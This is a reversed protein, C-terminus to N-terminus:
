NITHDKLFFPIETILLLKGSKGPAESFIHPFILLIPFSLSIYGCVHAYDNTQRIATDQFGLGSEKESERKQLGARRTNSRRMLVRTLLNRSVTHTRYNNLTKNIKTSLNSEVDGGM